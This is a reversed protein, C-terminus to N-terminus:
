WTGGALLVQDCLIEGKETVVGSIKGGSTSLTRVACNQLLIAGKAIASKAMASVAISPEARGDSPTYIGGAWQGQGNPVLQDIEKASLLQSGLSLSKVSNSWAEHMALQEKS